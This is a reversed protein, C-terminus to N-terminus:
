NSGPLLPQVPNSLAVMFKNEMFSVGHGKVTHAIIAKPRDYSKERFASRLEEHNHGDVDLVKWGFAKFKYSILALNIIDKTFSMAQVENTDVIVTFNDLKHQSAFM